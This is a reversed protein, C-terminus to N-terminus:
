SNKIKGTQWDYLIKRAARFIDPSNGKEVMNFKRAIAELTDDKDENIEVDYFKELLGPFENMLQMAVVDPDKEKIHDITGIFSHKANVANEMYPIVGPTDILMIGGGVNVKQVAKTYGSVSSTPTSRKGNLANILSSKGVNPYGLVGVRVEKLKLKSAAIMIRERLMKTGLHEKASIFISNPTNKRIKEIYHKDVLDCKNMVYILPKGFRVVKDEIEMNRTGDIMRSDLVMLLIDSDSIVKNVLDWFNRAM